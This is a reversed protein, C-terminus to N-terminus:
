CVSYVYVIGINTTLVCIERVVDIYVYIDYIYIYLLEIRYM